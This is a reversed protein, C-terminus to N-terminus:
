KFAEVTLYPHKLLSVNNKTIAGTFYPGFFGVMNACTTSIGMLSGAFNPALEMFNM